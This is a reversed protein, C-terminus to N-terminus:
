RYKIRNIKFKKNIKGDIENKKDSIDNKESLINIKNNSESVEVM